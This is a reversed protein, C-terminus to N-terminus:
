QRERRKPSNVRRLESEAFALLLGVFAGLLAGVVVGACFLIPPTFDQSVLTLATFLAAGWIAVVLAYRWAPGNPGVLGRWRAVFLAVIFVLGVADTKIPM